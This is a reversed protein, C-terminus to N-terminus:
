GPLRATLSAVQSRLHEVQQALAPLANLQETLHEIRENQETLHETLRQLSAILMPDLEAPM